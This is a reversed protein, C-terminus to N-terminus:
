IKWVITESAHVSIMHVYHAPFSHGLHGGHSHPHRHRSSSAFSSIYHGPKLLQSEMKQWIKEPLPSLHHFPCWAAVFVNFPDRIAAEDMMWSASGALADSCWTCIVRGPQNWLSFISKRLCNTTQWFLCNRRKLVSVVLAFSPSRLAGRIGWNQMHALGVFALMGVRGWWWVWGTFMGTGVWPGVSSLLPEMHLVLEPWTESWFCSITFSVHTCKSDTASCGTEPRAM